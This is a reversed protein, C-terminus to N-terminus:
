CLLLYLEIIYSDPEELQDVTGLDCSELLSNSCDIDSSMLPVRISVIRWTLAMYFEARGGGGGRSKIFVVWVPVASLLAHRDTNEVLM